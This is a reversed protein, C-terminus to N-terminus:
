YGDQTKMRIFAESHQEFDIWSFGCDFALVVSDHRFKYELCDRELLCRTRALYEYALVPPALPHKYRTLDNSSLFSYARLCNVVKGLLADGSTHTAWTTGGDQEIGLRFDDWLHM